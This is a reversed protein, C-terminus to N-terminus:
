AGNFGGGVRCVDGFDVFNRFCYLVAIMAGGLNDKAGFVGIGYPLFPDGGFLLGDRDSVVSEVSIKTFLNVRRCVIPFL